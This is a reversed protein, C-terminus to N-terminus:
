LKIRADKVKSHQNLRGETLCKFCVHYTGNKEKIRGTGKCDPCVNENEM